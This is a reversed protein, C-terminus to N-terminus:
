EAEFSKMHKKTKATAPAAWPQEPWFHKPYRGKMEKRVEDYANRWFAPLDQTLQLPRQNPALLELLLREGGIQPHTDLGYFETLRAALRPPADASYEIRHNLGSPLEFQEPAHQQLQQQQSYDLRARLM